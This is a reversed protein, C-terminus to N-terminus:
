IWARNLFRRQNMRVKTRGLARWVASSSPSLPLCSVAEARVSPYFGRAPCFGGHPQADWRPTRWRSQGPREGVRGRKTEERAVKVQVGAGLGREALLVGADRGQWCPRRSPTRPAGSRCGTGGPGPRNREWPRGWHTRRDGGGVKFEAALPNSARELSTTDLRKQYGELRHRNETQKVAENVYKLIERCQDRARCLKEHESTGGVSRPLPPAPPHRGSSRTLTWCVRGGTAALRRYPCLHTTKAESSPRM